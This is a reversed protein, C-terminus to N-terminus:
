VEHVDNTLHLFDKLNVKKGEKKIQGPQEIKLCCDLSGEEALVLSFCDVKDAIIDKTISLFCGSHRHFLEIHDGYLM